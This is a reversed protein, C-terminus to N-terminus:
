SSCMASQAQCIRERAAKLHGITFLFGPLFCPDLMTWTSLKIALSCANPQCVTAMRRCSGNSIQPGALDALVSARAHSLQRKPEGMRGLALHAVAAPPQLRFNASQASM